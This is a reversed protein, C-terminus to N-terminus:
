KCFKEYIKIIEEEIKLKPKYKGSKSEQRIEEAREIGLIRALSAKSIVDEIEVGNKMWCIDHVTKWLREEPHAEIRSEVENTEIPAFGGEVLKHNVTEIIWGTGFNDYEFDKEWIRYCDTDLLKLRESLEMVLEKAGPDNDVILYRAVKQSKAIRLVAEANFATIGGTGEFNHIAIGQIEPVIGLVNMLIRVVTEESAGEILLVVKPIAITLYKSVIKRKIEPDNYDFKKGFLKDKWDGRRGDTIDDPDPQEEGTLDRLFLNLIGVIEYYDQALLAKGRLKEKQGFPMLRVLTYWRALPDNFHAQVAFHDRVNKVERLSMGSNGLVKQPSFFNKKWDIWKEFSKKDWTLQIRGRYDPQYSNQLRLLLGIQRVLRPRVRLFAEKVGKHMQKAQRFMQECSTAADLYSSTLVLRTPNLFRDVLFVQYPHYYLFTNAEGDKDRYEEWPKVNKSDPFELLGDGLYEKLYWSSSSIGAYRIKGAEKTTPRKLRLVPYLLGIREFHELEEQSVGLKRARLFDAFRRSDLLQFQPVALDICERLYGSLFLNHDSM